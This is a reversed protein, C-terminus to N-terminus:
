ARETSPFWPIGVKRLGHIYEEPWRPARTSARSSWRSPSTAGARAGEPHAPVQDQQHDSRVPHDLRVVSGIREDELLATLLHTYIEPNASASRPSTPPTRSPSSIPCYKACARATRTPSNSLISASRRRLTSPSAACRPASEGLVAMNAGPCARAPSRSRPSQRGAGRADRRLHHGRTRAQGEDARTNGAMAGTIRPPRNRRRPARARICCSSRSARRTARAEGRRHLGAPRRLTEVYMAIFVHTDPITSWGNSTIRWM